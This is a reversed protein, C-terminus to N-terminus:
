ENQQYPNKKSKIKDKTRLYGPRKPGLTSNYVISKKFDNLNFPAWPAFYPVGFSDQSVLEILIFTLFVTFGFFGFTGTFLILIFKLVRFPNILTYDPIAFSALLSTPAIILLIPSFISASIAAQGIIIAGVIGVASGIQKPIRLLAERLLEMIFELSLVGILANFPVNVRMEALSIIYDSPLVDTHFSSITVYLSSATLAIIISAYRILRAFVAFYKNDYRDDCTRFFESFTKPALLVVGSGEVLVLVKGELLSVFAMDSREVLGMNPFFQLKNNLLFSQLEGSEGIGDVDINDIRKQIEAVVYNNAIDEIYVVAVRTKTRRGVEHYKIRLNKDKIRYRILSINADLSEIFCDQPGRVTYTLTPTPISRQEVKRSNVVIYNTDTSFVIVAMGALIFEEIKSIDSHIKCDDAYIISELAIQANITKKTESCNAILPKIVSETLATRDTLQIIYFIKLAGRHYPITRKTLDLNHSKLMDTLQEININEM